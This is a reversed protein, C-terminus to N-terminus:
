AQNSSKILFNHSPVHFIDNHFITRATWSKDLYAKMQEGLGDILIHDQILHKGAEM